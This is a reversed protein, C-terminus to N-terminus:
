GPAAPMALGVHLDDNGADAGEALLMEIGHLSISPTSTTDTTPRWSAGVRPPPACTHRAAHSWPDRRPAPAARRRHRWERCAWASAHRAPWATGSRRCVRAPPFGAPPCSAPHAPLPPPARLAGPQHAHDPVRPAEIGRMLPDVPADDGALKRDLLHVHLGIEEPAGVDVRQALRTGPGIMQQPMVGRVGHVQETVLRARLDHARVGHLPRHMRVSPMAM